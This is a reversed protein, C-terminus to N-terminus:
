NPLLRVIKEMVTQIKNRSFYLPFYTNKGWLKFLDKYHKSSPDGSQGPANTATMLDWDSCDIIVRFSAGATQNLNSGTSNVTNENGGRVIPGVNLIQQMPESLLKSLPHQILIHKMNVQGYKWGAEDNGLKEKVINIADEMSQLLIKDREIVPNDGLVNTPNILLDIM